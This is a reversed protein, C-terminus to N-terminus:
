SASRSHICLLNGDATSVLAMSERFVNSVGRTTGPELTANELPYELGQLTIGRVATGLPAVTLIDGPLGSFSARSKGSLLRIELDRDLIRVQRGKLFSSALLGINALSMDWRGGLAGLVTMHTAGWEAAHRLALELDTHDKRKPWIRIDPILSEWEALITPSVSDMDGIVVHPYLGLIRCHNLGGDAAIVRVDPGALERCESPPMSIPGNAIILARRIAPEVRNRGSCGSVPDM